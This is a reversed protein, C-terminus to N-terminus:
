LKMTPLSGPKDYARWPRKALWRTQGRLWAKKGAVAVSDKAACFFRDKFVPKKNSPKKAKLAQSV